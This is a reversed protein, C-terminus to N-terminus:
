LHFILSLAGAKGNQGGKFVAAHIQERPRMIRERKEEEKWIEELEKLVEISMRQIDELVEVYKGHRKNLWKLLEKLGRTHEQVGRNAAEDAKDNGEKDKREVEGGQAQKEPAHGKVETVKVSM